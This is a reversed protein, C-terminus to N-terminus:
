FYLTFKKLYFYNYFITKPVKAFEIIQDIGASHFVM